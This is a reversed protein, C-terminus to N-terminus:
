THHTTIHSAIRHPTNHHTTPHTIASLSLTVFYSHLPPLFSSFPPHLYLILFCVPLASYTRSVHNFCKAVLVCVAASSSLGKGMPLTNLYNKIYVGKFDNENENIIVDDSSRTNQDTHTTKSSQKRVRNSHEQLVIAATGAIYSYYGGKSAVEKLEIVDLICDFTQVEGSWLHYLVNWYNLHYNFLNSLINSTFRHRRFANIHRLSTIFSNIFFWQLFIFLNNLLLKIPGVAQVWQQRWWKM